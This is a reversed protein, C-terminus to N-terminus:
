RIRHGARRGAFLEAQRANPLNGLSVLHPAYALAHARAAEQAAWCARVTGQVGEPPYGAIVEACRVAAAVAEGPETVETVLGVEYARRASMREATGMLAMRTAEGSPMRQAMLVSEFASVMGYTTHPDFFTATSDAVVFESEGLLYFAGGCAMGNVAAIVPKWLDNAKPGIAILPDDIMYPSNPQPVDELTDRDLGVCFARGGAGTLVVARVTDDFRLERWAAALEGATEPDIANLKAPRDLTLVAVGTDKDADLRLTM